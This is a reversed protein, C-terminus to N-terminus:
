LRFEIKKEAKAMPDGYQQFPMENQEAILKIVAARKSSSMLSYEPRNGTVPDQEIGFISLPLEILERIDIECVSTGGSLTKFFDDIIAARILISNPPPFQPSTNHARASLSFQMHNAMNEDIGSARIAGALVHCLDHMMAASDEASHLFGHKKNTEVFSWIADRARLDTRHGYIELAKIATEITPGTQETTHKM